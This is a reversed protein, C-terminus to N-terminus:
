QVLSTSGTYVIPGDNVVIAQRETNINNVNVTNITGVNYGAFGGGYKV